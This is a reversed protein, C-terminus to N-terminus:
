NGGATRPRDGATYLDVCTHLAMSSSAICSSGRSPDLSRVDETRRWLRREEPVFVPQRGMAAASAGWGPSRNWAPPGVFVDSMSASQAVRGELRDLM